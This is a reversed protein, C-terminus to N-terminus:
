YNQISSVYFQLDGRFTETRRILTSDLDLMVNVVTLRGENVAVSLSQGERPLRNLAPPPPSTYDIPIKKLTGGVGTTYVTDDAFIAVIDLGTYTVPPAYVKGLVMASDRALTDLSNFLDGDSSRRIAFLDPLVDLQTNSSSVAKLDKLICGQFSRGFPM